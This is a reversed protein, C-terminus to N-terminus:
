WEIVRESGSAEEKKQHADCTKWVKSGNNLSLGDYLYLKRQQRAHM